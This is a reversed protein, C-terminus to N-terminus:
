PIYDVQVGPLMAKIKKLDQPKIEHPANIIIRKLSKSERLAQLAEAKSTSQDLQLVKLNPLKAIHALSEDKTYFGMRLEELSSSTLKSMDKQGVYTQKLDLKRLNPLQSIHTLANSGMVFSDLVLTELKPNGSVLYKFDSDKGYLKADLATLNPFKNLLQMAVNDISHTKGDLQLKTIAENEAAPRASWQVLTELAEVKTTENPPFDKSISKENPGPNNSFILDKVPPVDVKEEPAVAVRDDRWSSFRHRANVEIKDKSMDVTVAPGILRDARCLSSIVPQGITTLGIAYPNLSRLASSVDTGKFFPDCDYHYKLKTANGATDREVGIGHNRELIAAATNLSHQDTTNVQKIIDKAFYDPMSSSLNDLLDINHLMRSANRYDKSTASEILEKASVLNASTM